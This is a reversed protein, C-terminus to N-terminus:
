MFILYAIGCLLIVDASISWLIYARFLWKGIWKGVQELRNQAM